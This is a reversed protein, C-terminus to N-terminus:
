LHTGESCPADMVGSEGRESGGAPNEGIVRSSQGGLGHSTRGQGHNGGNSSGGGHPGGCAQSHSRDCDSVDGTDSAQGADHDSALPRTLSRLNTVRKTAIQAETDALKEIAAEREAAFKENTEKRITTADTGSVKATANQIKQNSLTPNTQSRTNRSISSM